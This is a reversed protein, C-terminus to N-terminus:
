SWLSKVVALFSKAHGGNQTAVHANFEHASKFPHLHPNLDPNTTLNGMINRVKKAKQKMAPYALVAGAVGSGTLGGISPNVAQGAAFGGAIAFSNKFASTVFGNFTVRDQAVQERIVALKESYEEGFEQLEKQFGKRLLRNSVSTWDDGNVKVIDKHLSIGAHRIMPLLEELSAKTPAAFLVEVKDLSHGKLSSLASKFLQCGSGHIVWQTEKNRQQADKLLKALTLSAVNFNTKKQDPTIWLRGQKCSKEPHYMLTYGTDKADGYAKEVMEPMVRIATDEFRPCVGNIAVKKTSISPEPDQIHDTTWRESKKSYKIHYAGPVKDDGFDGSSIDTIMVGSLDGYRMAQQIFYTIQVSGIASMHVSADDAASMSSIGGATSKLQKIGHIIQQGKSDNSVLEAFKGALHSAVYVKRGCAGNTDKDFLM